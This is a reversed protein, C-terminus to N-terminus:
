AQDAAQRAITAIDARSINLDNLERDNLMSLEDFTRRYISRRARQTRLAEAISQFRQAFGSEFRTIDTM